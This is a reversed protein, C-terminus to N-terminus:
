RGIAIITFPVGSLDTGAGVEKATGAATAPYNFEYVRIIVTNGNISAVDALYGGGAMVIAREIQTLDDITVGFGGTTYSSPGTVTDIYLKYTGLGKAKTLGAVVM